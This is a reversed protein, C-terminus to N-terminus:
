GGLSRPSWPNSKKINSMFTVGEPATAPPPTMPLLGKKNLWQGFISDKTLLKDMGGAISGISLGTTIGGMAAGARVESGIDGYAAGVKKGFESTGPGTLTKSESVIKEIDKVDRKAAYREGVMSGIGSAAGAILPSKAVKAGATLLKTLLPASGGGTAATLLTAGLLGLATGVMKGKGRSEGLEKEEKALQSEYGLMLNRMKQQENQFELQEGRTKYDITAM